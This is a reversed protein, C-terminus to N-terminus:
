AAAPTRKGAAPGRALGPNIAAGRGNANGNPRGQMGGTMQAAMMQEFQGMPMERGAMSVGQQTVEATYREPNEIRSAIVFDNWFQVLIGPNIQAVGMKMAAAALAAIRNMELEPHMDLKTPKLAFTLQPNALTAIDTDSEEFDGRAKAMYKLTGGANAKLLARHLDVFDGISRSWELVMDEGRLDARQLLMATKAAPANPDTQSERGSQGQSVGALTDLYRTVLNEEDLSDNTRSLNHLQLQTPLKGSNFLSDPVWMTMGPKFEAYEAGLDVHEKLSAPVILTVSDTLRRVNSRHRHLANIERYLDMNDGLISDGLM